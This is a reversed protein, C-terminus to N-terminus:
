QSHKWAVTLHVGDHLHVSQWLMSSPLGGGFVGSRARGPLDRCAEAHGEVSVEGISAVSDGAMNLGPAMEDGDRSPLGPLDILLKDRSVSM